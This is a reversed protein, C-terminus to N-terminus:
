HIANQSHQLDLFNGRFNLQGNEIAYIKNCSELTQLRHTFVIRTIQLDDVIKRINQMSLSDLGSTAEDLILLKPAGILARALAILQMQGNSFSVAGENLHTHIGMPLSEIYVGLGVRDLIELVEAEDFFRGAIINEVISGSFTRYDQMVVSISQRLNVLDLEDLPSGDVSISGKTPKHIGLLLKVLTSKGCGSPGLIGIYDGQNISLSFDNIVYSGNISYRFSLNTLNINGLFVKLRKKGSSLEPTATLLSMSRILQSRIGFSSLITGAVSQISTTVLTLSSVFAVYFGVSKLDTGSVWYVILSYIASLAILNMSQQFAGYINSYQGSRVIRRRMEIYNNSWRLFIRRNAGFVKISLMNAIMEYVVTLVNVSMSEGESYASFSLHGLWYAFLLSIISFILVVLAGAPFYYTLICIGIIISAVDMVSRIFLQVIARRVIELGVFRRMLAVHSQASFFSLPLRFLRELTGVQMHFGMGGEVRQAIIEATYRLLLILLQSGAVVSIIISLLVLDRNPVAYDIVFGTAVPSLYGLVAAILTFFVFAAFEVPYIKLVRKIILEMSLGSNPLNPYLVFALPDLHHAFEKSIPYFRGLKNPYCYEMMRTKRNLQMLIPQHDTTDFALVMGLDYNWWDGTLSIDRAYLGLSAAVDHVSGGMRYGALPTGNGGFIIAARQCIAFIPGLANIRESDGISTALLQDFQSLTDDVSPLQSLSKSM